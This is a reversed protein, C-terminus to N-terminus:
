AGYVEFSWLSVVGPTAPVFKVFRATTPPIDADVFVHDGNNSVVTAGAGDSVTFANSYHVGDTSTQIAYNQPIVGNEPFFSERVQSIVHNGALDVAFFPHADAQAGQNEWRSSPNADVASQARYGPAQFFFTSADADHNEALDTDHYRIEATALETSPANLVIKLFNTNAPVAGKPNATHYTSGGGSKPASIALAIPSYSANDSSGSVQFTGPAGFFKLAFDSIGNYRYIITNGGSTPKAAGTDSGEITKSNDLAIGQSSFTKALDDLNDVVLVTGDTFAGPAIYNPTLKQTTAGPLWMQGAEYAGADHGNPDDMFGAINVGKGLGSTSHFNAPLNFTTLNHDVKPAHGPLFTDSSAFYASLNNRVMTGFADNSHNKVRAGNIVIGRRQGNLPISNNLIVNGYTNGLFNKV